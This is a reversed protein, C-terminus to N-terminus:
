SVEYIEGEMKITKISELAIMRYAQKQVDRV